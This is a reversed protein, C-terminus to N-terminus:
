WNFLKKGVYKVVDYHTELYNLVVIIVLFM